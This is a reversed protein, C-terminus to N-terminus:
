TSSTATRATARATPRSSTSSAASQHRERRVDPAQDLEARLRRLLLQGPVLEPVPQRPLRLRRRHAADRGNHPTRYYIRTRTRRRRLNGECNPWGYNAGRPASTSSRTRPRTSTAASTASSCGGPRRTTTAASRTAFGTAGLDLRREPGIGDYFPNDTPITGDPNIRHIKGRPSTLSQADRPSDFDRRDHLLAQRRQRLHDRRRPARRGRGASGPLPRARQRRRDRQRCREGHLALPPRPEPQGLTYFVYFYHNTAFNPDLPSTMSGTSTAPRTSRRSTRSSCSRRRIRSPTRRRCSRSRGAWSPSSCAATPFSSSARDASRSRRRSRDREPLREDNAVNVTVPASTTSTAPRRRARAGDAHARRQSLLTRTGRSATPRRATRPTRARRRRRLVARGGGRRDDRRARPSTRSTRSRRAPRALHDLGDATDHRRAQRRVPTAM